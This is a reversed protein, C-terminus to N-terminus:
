FGRGYIVFLITQGAVSGNEVPIAFPLYPCSPGNRRDPSTKAWM